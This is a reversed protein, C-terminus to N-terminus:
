PCPGGPNFPAPQCIDFFVTFRNSCSVVDGIVTITYFDGPNLGAKQPPTLANSTYNGTALVGIGFGAPVPANAQLVVVVTRSLPPCGTGCNTCTVSIVNFSGNVVARNRPDQGELKDDRDVFRYKGTLPDIEIGFSPPGPRSWFEGVEQAVSSTAPALCLVALVVILHKSRSM